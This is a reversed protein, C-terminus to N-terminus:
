FTVCDFILLLMKTKKDQIKLFIYTKNRLHM